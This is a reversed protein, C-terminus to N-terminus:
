SEHNMSEDSPRAEGNVFLTVSPFFQQQMDSMDLRLRPAAFSPNCIAPHLM